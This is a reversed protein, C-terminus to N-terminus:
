YKSSVQEDTEENVAASPRGCGHLDEVNSSLMGSQLPCILMLLCWEM